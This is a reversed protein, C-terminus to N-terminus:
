TPNVRKPPPLTCKFTTPSKGRSQGGKKVNKSGMPDRKIDMKIKNVGREQLFVHNTEIVNLQLSLKIVIQDVKEAFDIMQGNELM